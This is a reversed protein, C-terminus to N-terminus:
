QVIVPARLRSPESQGYRAPYELKRIALRLPRQITITEWVASKLADAGATLYITAGAKLRARETGILVRRFLSRFFYNIKDNRTFRPIERPKLTLLLLSEEARLM